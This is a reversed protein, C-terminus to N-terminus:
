NSSPGPADEGEDDSSETRIVEVDAPFEENQLQALFLRALNERTNEDFDAGMGQRLLFTTIQELSPPARRYFDQIVTQKYTLFQRSVCGICIWTPYPLFRFPSAVSPDHEM